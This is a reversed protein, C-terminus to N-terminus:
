FMCCLGSTHTKSSKCALASEWLPFVIAISKTIDLSEDPGVRGCYPSDEWTRVDFSVELDRREDVKIAKAVLNFEEFRQIFILLEFPM